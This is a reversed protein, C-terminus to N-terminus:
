QPIEKGTFYKELANNLRTPDALMQSIAALRRLDAERRKTYMDCLLKAVDRADTYKNEPCVCLARQRFRLEWEDALECESLQTMAEAFSCDWARAAAEVEGERHDNLWRLRAQEQTRRGRLISDMGLLPRVRYYKYGTSEVRIANYELLIDLIRRPVDDPVDCSTRLEWLSVVRSQDPLLWRVCRLVSEANPISEEIRKRANVRDEDNMLVLSTSPLGDRGARGSEQMYAEPSTPMCIHVVSRVDAKDIGMGFAITAVLIDPKNVFFNDQLQSRLDSPMGAHYYTAPYGAASLKAAFEEADRRTYTYIICPRHSPQRIHALLCEWKDTTSVVLRQINPRYPSVEVVNEQPIHFIECLDAKVEPPATATFAMTAAFPFDAAWAPLRLYDPRFSHGWQSICHAEDVIFLGPSIRHLAENLVPNRLSEPAAYLLQLDGAVLRNLVDTRETQSLASDFRAARIGLSHLYEVQERILALLPSIVISTGERLYAAAQYCFSKGHGTPLIGLVSQGRIAYTIIQEQGARFSQKGFRRLAEEVKRTEEATLEKSVGAPM